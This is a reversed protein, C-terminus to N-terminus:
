PSPVFVAREMSRVRNVQLLVIFLFCIKKHDNVIMPHRMIAYSM